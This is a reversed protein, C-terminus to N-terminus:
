KSASGKKQSLGLLKKLLLAQRCTPDIVLAASLDKEASDTKKLQIEVSARASLYIASSPYALVSKNAFDYAKAIDADYEKASKESLILLQSAEYQAEAVIAKGDDSKDFDANAIVQLFREKAPETDNLMRYAKGAYLYTVLNTPKFRSLSDILKTAERLKAIDDTNLEEGKANKEFPGKIIDQAKRVGDNFEDLTTVIARNEPTMAPRNSLVVVAGLLVILFAPFAAKRWNPTSQEQM